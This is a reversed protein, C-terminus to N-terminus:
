SKYDFSATAASSRRGSWFQLQGALEPFKGLMLFFGRELRARWSGQASLANRMVQAPYLLLLFLAVPGGFAFALAAVLPLLVCWLWPRFLTRFDAARDGSFQLSLTNATGFGTRKCRIWWQGFRYMSADHLAMPTALRWVTGGHLRLRACLEAEEGAAIDDRFGGVSEFSVARMMAIGGCASTEGAPRNWEADCLRNYVSREPFRERLSGCVCVVNQNAELYACAAPLWEGLVECDGDVFQVFAIDPWVCRLQEFGRNRARAATFPVSMNLAVTAIGRSLAMQISGDTSGSDVYVIRSTLPALSDFCARLRDGENRGIVIVGFVADPDAAAVTTRDTARDPEGEESM